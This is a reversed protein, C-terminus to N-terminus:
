RLIGYATSINWSKFFHKQKVSGLPVKDGDCDSFQARDLALEIWDM